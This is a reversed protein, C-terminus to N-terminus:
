AGTTQTLVLFGYPVSISWFLRSCDKLEQLKYQACYLSVLAEELATGFVRAIRSIKDTLWRM